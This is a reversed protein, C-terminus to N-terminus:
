EVTGGANAASLDHTVYACLSLITTLPGATPHERYQSGRNMCVRPIGNKNAASSLDQGQLAPTFNKRPWAAALQFKIQTKSFKYKETAKYLYYLQSFSIISYNKYQFVEVTNQTKV